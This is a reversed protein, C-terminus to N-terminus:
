SAVALVADARPGAADAPTRPAPRQGAADADADTVARGTVIAHLHGSYCAVVMTITGAGDDTMRVVRSEPVLTLGTRTPVDPCHVAIM